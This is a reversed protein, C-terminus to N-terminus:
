KGVREKLINIIKEYSDTNYMDYLIYIEEINELSIMNAIETESVSYKIKDPNFGSLKLRVVHDIARKGGIVIENISEDNLIEYDADYIWSIFESSDQADHRDDMFMLISKKHKDIDVINFSSSVAVSNFGKSLMKIVKINGINVEEYRSKPVIAKKLGEKIQDISLGAEKCLAIACTENYMDIIRQGILPFNVNENDITLLLENDNKAECIYKAIPSKFDCKTCHGQGISHYRVFDFKLDSGCKPCITIDKIISDRCIEFDQLALRFYVKKNNNGLSSSILDDSNLVLTTNEKTNSNIINFIYDVNANRMMSDRQLNTCALYDVRMKPFLRITSREDIEFVAVDQKCIGKLDCYKLCASVIGSPINGGLRNSLVSYGNTEFIDAVINTTSTKGNTGTVCIVKKPLTIGCLINPCLKLAITGPFDTANFGLLQMIKILLKVVIITIIKM